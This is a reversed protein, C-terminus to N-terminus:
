TSEACRPATFGIERPRAPSRRGGYDLDDVFPVAHGGHVTDVRPRLEEHEDLAARAEAVLERRVRVRDKWACERELRFAGVDVIVMVRPAPANPM